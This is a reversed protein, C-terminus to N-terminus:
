VVGCAQTYRKTVSNLSEHEVWLHKGNLDELTLKPALIPLTITGLREALLPQLEIIKEQQLAEKNPEFACHLGTRLQFTYVGPEMRQIDPWFMLGYSTESVQVFGLEIEINEANKTVIQIRQEDAIAFPSLSFLGIILSIIIVRKNM